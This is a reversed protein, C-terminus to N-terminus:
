ALTALLWRSTRQWPESTIAGMEVLHVAVMAGGAWLYVPHVRREVVLDRAIVVLVLTDALLSFTIFPNPVWPMLHRMRLWAPALASITALLLLRKHSAPDRRKAIALAVLGGFLVMEILINTFQGLVFPDPGAALDRRTAHLGVLVGSVVIAVALTAGAWGLQRHLPLRRRHVLTSQHILFLLWGFLLAGHVHVVPPVDLTGRAMPVFFTPSFGVIAIALFLCTMALFFRDRSPRVPLVATMGCYFAARGQGLGSGPRNIGGYTGLSPGRYTKSGV